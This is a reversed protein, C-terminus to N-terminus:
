EDSRKKKLYQQLSSPDDLQLLPPVSQHMKGFSFAPHLICNKKPNSFIIITNEIMAQPLTAL